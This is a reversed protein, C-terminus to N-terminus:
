WSPIAAIDNEGVRHMQCLAHNLALEAYKIAAQLLFLTNDVENNRRILKGWRSPKKPSKESSEECFPGLCAREGGSQWYFFSMMAKLQCYGDYWDM